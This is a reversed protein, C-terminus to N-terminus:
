ILAGGCSSGSGATCGFCHPATAIPRGRLEEPEFEWLYTPRVDDGGGLPLGAMQNFDCDYVAGMWDVNITDRCMLAPLTAPNFSIRLLGLYGALEGTSRLHRAFRGVPLNALCLLRDFVIGYRTGLERRYDAELGSQDPPLSAGGPNYVLDLVLGTGRGFGAANLRRLAEISRAHVGAGRQADVNEELYCPMSAIVELGLERFADILHEGHPEVLVVLNTRVLVRAGSARAGAALQLFSECMEPAGGTLDVVPPRHERVWELCRSAVEPSMTERRSPGATVHCHACAINCVRGLNLQLVRPSGRELVLGSSSLKSDFDNM